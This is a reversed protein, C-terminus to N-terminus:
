GKTLHHFNGFEDEVEDGKLGLCSRAAAYVKAIQSQTCPDDRWDKVEPDLSNRVEDKTQEFESLKELHRDVDRFM